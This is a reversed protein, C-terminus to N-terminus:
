LTFVPIEALGEDVQTAFKLAGAATPVLRETCTHLRLDLKWGNDFTLQIYSNEICDATVRSPAGVSSYDHVQTQGRSTIVKFFGINGVLFQFLHEAAGPDGSHSNIFDAVLACTPSYLEHAKIGPQVSEVQSFLSATPAVQMAARLFAGYISDLGERFERDERNGKPFGMHQATASPRQHKADAHNHKISLCTQKPHAICIDTVDGNTGASDPMRDVESGSGLRADSELWVRIKRAATSFFSQQERSLQGYYLADRRQDTQARATLSAGSDVLEEVIRYELARGNDNSTSPM